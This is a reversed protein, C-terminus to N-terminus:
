VPKSRFYREVFRGPRETVVLVSVLCKASHFLVQFLVAHCEVSKVVPQAALERELGVGLREFVVRFGVLKERSSIARRVNHGLLNRSVDSPRVGIM